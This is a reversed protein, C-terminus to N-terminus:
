GSRIFLLTRLTTLTKEVGEERAGAFLSILLVDGRSKIAEIEKDGKEKITALIPVESNLAFSLGERFASSHMEMTGIEDIIILQTSSEPIISPLAITEIDRINVRYKGVRPGAKQEVHALVGRRDDSTIIEFGIRGARQRIERTIFGKWAIGKLATMIKEVATTKGAGPRGTILINKKM